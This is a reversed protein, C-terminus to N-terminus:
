IEHCNYSGILEKFEDDIYLNQITKDDSPYSFKDYLNLASFVNKNEM